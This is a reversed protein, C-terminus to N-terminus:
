KGTSRTGSSGGPKRILGMTCPHLRFGRLRRPKSALGSPRQITREARFPPVQADASTLRELTARVRARGLDDAHPLLANLVGIVQAKALPFSVERKQDPQAVDGEGGMSDVPGSGSDSSSPVSPLM